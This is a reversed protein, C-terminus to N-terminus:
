EVGGDDILWLLNRWFANVSVNFTETKARARLNYCNFTANAFVKQSAEPETEKLRMLDSASMGLIQQGIDDFASMFLQATDDAM